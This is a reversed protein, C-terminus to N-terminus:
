LVQLAKVKSEPCLFMKAKSFKSTITMELAVAVFFIIFNVGLLGKTLFFFLM